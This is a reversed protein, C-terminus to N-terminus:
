TASSMLMRGLPDHLVEYHEVTEEAKSALYLGHM